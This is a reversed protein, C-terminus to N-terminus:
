LHQYLETGGMPTKLRDPPENIQAESANDNDASGGRAFASERSDM